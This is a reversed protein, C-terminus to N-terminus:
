FPTFGDLDPMAIEETEDALLKAMEIAELLAAEEALKKNEPTTGEEKVISVKEAAEKKEPEKVSVTKIIPNQVDPINSHEFVPLKGTKIFKIFFNHDKVENIVDDDSLGGYTFCDLLTNNIDERDKGEIFECCNGDKRYVSCEASRSYETLEFYYGKDGKFYTKKIAM